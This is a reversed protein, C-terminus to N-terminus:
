KRLVTIRKTRVIKKFGAPVFTTKVVVPVRTATALLRTGEATPRLRIAGADPEDFTRSGKALVTRGSLVQLKWTGAYHTHVMTRVQGALLGAVGKRQTTRITARHADAIADLVMQILQGAGNDTVVTATGTKGGPVTNVVTEVKTQAPCGGQGAAVPCPDNHDLVGDGDTDRKRADTGKAAEAAADLGDGDVDADCADGQGDGDLDAQDGNPTLLCNDVPDNRGDGDDDRDCVDGFGDDDRDLQDANADQPCNDVPDLTGDGDNDADCADGKKDGDVDSQDANPANPCNDLSNVHGDGDRDSDCVDGLGDGDADNNNTSVTADCKDVDDNLTDNDDNPDCANGIGDGDPTDAQDENAVSPCNDEADPFGDSDEDPAEPPPEAVVGRASPAFGDLPSAAAAAPFAVAFVALLVLLPRLVM